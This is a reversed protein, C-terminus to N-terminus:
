FLVVATFTIPSGTVGADGRDGEAGRGQDGLEWSVATTGDAGTESERLSVEGGGATVEWTVMAGSVPNGFRDAVRM